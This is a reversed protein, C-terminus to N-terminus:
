TIDTDQSQMKIELWMDPNELTGSRTRGDPNWAAYQNDIWIVMGLPLHPQLPTQLVIHGDVRFRTGQIPPGSEIEYHHWAAPDCPVIAADYNVLRSALKRALRGLAPILLFPAAALGPALLLSPIRPASFISALFGQAPRDDRFSLYNPPAGFFFWAANPLAPLRIGSGKIGLGASFPDNWFGFGWTGPLAVASARAEIELKLNDKHLFKRRPKGFYDDIQSVRYTGAAGAPISLRYHGTGLQERKGFQTM